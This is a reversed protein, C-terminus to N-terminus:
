NLADQKILKQMFIEDGARIVCKVYIHRSLIVPSNIKQPLRLSILM